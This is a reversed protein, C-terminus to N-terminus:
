RRASRLKGCRAKHLQINGGGGPKITGGLQGGASYGTSLEIQFLDRTGPEGNDTVTVVAIGVTDNITVAFTIRRTRLGIVEYNTIEISHVHMGTGHDIYNLGGWLRGNQIGGHVGFNGKAGSSTIIFGGGTVRDDCPSPAVPLPVEIIITQVAPNDTARVIVAVLQGPGPIFNAGNALADNIMAQAAATIGSTIGDTFFWIAAQVDDADGQKHNIIYNIYNWNIADFENPLNSSTSDYLRAPHFLGTPSEFDFYSVCYGSYLSNEVDFRAPVGSLTVDFFSDVGGGDAYFNVQSSPLKLLGAQASVGVLVSISLIAMSCVRFLVRM